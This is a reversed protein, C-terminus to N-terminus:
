GDAASPNGDPMANSSRIRGAAAFVFGSAIAAAACVLFLVGAGGGLDLFKGAAWPAVAAGSRMVALSSGIALGRIANPYVQGVLAGMLNLLGVAFFGAVGAVPATAITGIAMGLAATAIAGALAMPLIVKFGFRDALRGGVIGGIAGGISFLSSSIAAQALSAGRAEILSPLWGVPVFVPLAAFVMGIWLVATLRGAGERFLFAGEAKRMVMPKQATSPAGGAAALDSPVILLLLPAIILPAFGGVMFMARWGLHPVVTSSVIGAVVTGGASGACVITVATMRASYPVREILLASSVPLLGGLALGTLGRMVLLETADRVQSTVLAGVGFMFVVIM